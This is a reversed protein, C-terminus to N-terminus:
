VKSLYLLSNPDYKTSFGEGQYDLYKEIEYCPELSLKKIDEIKKRGFRLNWEPGSRYTVTAIESRYFVVVILIM